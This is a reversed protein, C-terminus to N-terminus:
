NLKNWYYIIWIVNSMIVSIAALAVILLSINVRELKRIRSELQAWMKGSEKPM